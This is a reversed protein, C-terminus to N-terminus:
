HHQQVRLPNAYGRRRLEGSLEADSFQDIRARRRQNARQEKKTAWRCNKPSYGRDNNRRDLSHQRSPRPGMDALFNAFSLRWRRCVAIGRAGYNKYSAHTTRTCRAIMAQWASFEATVAGKRAHGHVVRTSGTRQRRFCGCSRSKGSRLNPLSVVRETGCICRAYVHSISQGNGRRKPAASNLVTWLGYRNAM